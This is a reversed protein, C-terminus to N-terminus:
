AGGVGLTLVAVRARPARTEAGRCLQYEGRTRRAAALQKTEEAYRKASNGGITLLMRVRRRRGNHRREWVARYRGCRMGSQQRPAFGVGSASSRGITNDDSCVRDDHQAAVHETLRAIGFM